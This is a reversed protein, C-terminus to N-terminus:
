GRGGEGREGATQSPILHGNGNCAARGEPGWPWALRGRVDARIFNTIHVEGESM